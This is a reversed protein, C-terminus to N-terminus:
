QPRYKVISSEQKTKNMAKDAADLIDHAVEKNTRDVLDGPLITRVGVDVGFLEMFANVEEKKNNIYGKIGWETIIQTKIKYMNKEIDEKLHQVQIEDFNPSVVAFEDGGFRAVIDGPRHTYHTSLYNGVEKLVADGAGHGIKDNIYKFNKLDIFAISTKPITSVSINRDIQARYNGIYDELKSEFTERNTIGTLPDKDTKRSLIYRCTDVILGSLMLQKKSLKRGEKTIIEVVGIIMDGDGNQPISIPVMCAQREKHTDALFTQSQINGSKYTDVLAGNDSLELRYRKTLVDKAFDGGSLGARELAIKKISPFYVAVTDVVSYNDVDILNLADITAECFNNARFDLDYQLQRSIKDRVYKAGVLYEIREYHALVNSITQKFGFIIMNSLSKVEEKEQRHSRLITELDDSNKPELRISDIDEVLGDHVSIQWNGTEM